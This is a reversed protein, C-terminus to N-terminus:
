CHLATASETVAEAVERAEAIAEEVSVSRGVERAAALREEGIGEKLAALCRDRIPRDRPFM